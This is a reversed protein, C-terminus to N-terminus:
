SELNEECKNVYPLYVNAAEEGILGKLEELRKKMTDLRKATSPKDKRTLYKIIKDAAVKDAVAKEKDAIVQPNSDRIVTELELLFTDPMKDFYPKLMKKVNEIDMDAHEKLFEARYLEDDRLRGYVMALEKDVADYINGIQENLDHAEQAYVAVDEPNAGQEALLKARESKAGFSARLSQVTDVMKSLDVSLFPKVQQLTLRPSHNSNSSTRESDSNSDLEDITEGIQAFLDKQVVKAKVEAVKEADTKERVPAEVVVNENLDLLNAIAYAKESELAMNGENAKDAEMQAKEEKTPRGRRRNVKQAPVYALTEGNAGKLANGKSIEKKIRDLYYNIRAVRRNYDGYFLSQSAYDRAFAFAGLLRLGTEFDKRDAAEWADGLKELRPLKEKAFVSLDTIFELQEKTTMQAYDKKNSQEM